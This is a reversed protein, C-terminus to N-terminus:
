LSEFNVKQKFWFGQTLFFWWYATNTYSLLYFANKNVILEFISAM